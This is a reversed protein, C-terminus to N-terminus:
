LQSERLAENIVSLAGSRRPSFRAVSERDIRPGDLFPRFSEESRIYGQSHLIKLVMLAELDRLTERELTGEALLNFGSEIAAYLYENKEEGHLLRKLLAAIRAFLQVSGQPLRPVECERANTIRWFEKGRVLSVHSQSLDLLSHRLKSKGYRVGQASAQILGMDRTYLAYLKNAEGRPVSALVFAPTQYIHYSM